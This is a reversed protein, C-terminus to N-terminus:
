KHAETRDFTDLANFGSLVQRVDATKGLRALYAAPM